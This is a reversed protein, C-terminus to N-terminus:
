RIGWPSTWGGMMGQLGHELVLRDDVIELETELVTWSSNMNNMIEPFNHCGKTSSNREETKM